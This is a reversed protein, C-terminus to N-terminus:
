EDRMIGQLQLDTFLSHIYDKPVGEAELKSGLEMLGAKGKKLYADKAYNFAKDYNTMRRYQAVRQEQTGSAGAKSLQTETPSTDEGELQRNLADRRDM